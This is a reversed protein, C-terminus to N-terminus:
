QPRVSSSSVQDSHCEQHSAWPFLASIAFSWPSLWHGHMQPLPLCLWLCRTCGRLCTSLERIAKNGLVREQVAELWALRLPSNEDDVEEILRVTQILWETKNEGETTRTHTTPHDDPLFGEQFEASSHTARTVDPDSHLSSKLTRHPSSRRAQREEKGELNKRWRKGSEVMKNKGLVTDTTIRFPRWNTQFLFTYISQGADARIARVFNIAISPSKQSCWRRKTNVRTFCLYAAQHKLIPKDQLHKIPKDCVPLQCKGYPPVQNKCNPIKYLWVGIEQVGPSGVDVMKQIVWIETHVWFEIGDKSAVSHKALFVDQGHSQIAIQANEQQISNCKFRIYEGQTPKGACSRWSSKHMLIKRLAHLKHQEGPKLASQKFAKIWRTRLLRMLTCIIESQPHIRPKSFDFFHWAHENTKWHM